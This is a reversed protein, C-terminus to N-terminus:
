ITIHITTIELRPGVRNDDCYLRGIVELSILLRIRELFEHILSGEEAM